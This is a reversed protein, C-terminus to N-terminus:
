VLYDSPVVYAISGDRTLAIAVAGPVIERVPERESAFAELLAASQTYFAAHHPRAWCPPRTRRGCARSRRSSASGSVLLLSGPAVIEGDGARIRFVNWLGDNEVVEAVEHHDSRALEPTLIESAAWTPTAEYRDQGAAVTSVSRAALWALWFRSTM